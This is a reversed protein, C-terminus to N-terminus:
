INDVKDNNLYRMIMSILCHKCVSEIKKQSPQVEDMSSSVFSNGTKTDYIKFSINNSIITLIILRNEKQQDVFYMPLFINSAHEHEIEHTNIYLEKGFFDKLIIYFAEISKQLKHLYDITWRDSELSNIRDILQNKIKKYERKERFRFKGWFSSFEKELEHCTEISQFILLLKNDMM